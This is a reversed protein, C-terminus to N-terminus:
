NITVNCTATGTGNVQVNNVQASGSVETEVEVTYTGEPIGIFTFSGDAETQTAIEEGNVHITVYANAVAGSGSVTVSGEIEGTQDLDCARFDASFNCGTIDAITSVWQGIWIGQFTFSDNIDLDLLFESTDGEEIVLAPSISVTYSGQADANMDYSTGNSLEVSAANLTVRVQNYTGPELEATAVTQTTGNTLGVMNFNTSGEFVTTYEGSTNQLEVKAVGINAEAVFDFPFPDDTLKVKVAGHGESISEDDKDCSILAGFFLTMILIKKVLNKM